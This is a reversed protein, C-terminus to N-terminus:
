MQLVFLDHWIINLSFVLVQILLIDTTQRYHLLITGIYRKVHVQMAVECTNTIIQICHHMSSQRNYPRFSSVKIVRHEAKLLQLRIKMVM